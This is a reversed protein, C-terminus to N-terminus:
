LLFIVEECTQNVIICKIIISAVGLAKLLFVVLSLLFELLM